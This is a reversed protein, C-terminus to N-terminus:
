RGALASGAPRHNQIKTLLRAMDAITVGRTNRNLRTIPVALEGLRKVLTRESCAFAAAVRQLPVLQFDAPVDDVIKFDDM